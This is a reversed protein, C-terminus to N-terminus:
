KRIKIYSKRRSRPARCSTKLFFMEKKLLIFKKSILEQDM